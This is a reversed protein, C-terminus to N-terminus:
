LKLFSKADDHHEEENVLLTNKMAVQMQEQMRKAFFGMVAHSMIKYFFQFKRQAAAIGLFGAFDQGTQNVCAVCGPM